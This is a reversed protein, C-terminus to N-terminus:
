RNKQRGPPLAAAAAGSYAALPNAAQQTGRQLLANAFAPSRQYAAGARRLAQQALFAAGFPAVVPIHSAGWTAAAGLAAPNTAVQYVGGLGGAGVAGALLPHQSLWGGTAAAAGPPGQGGGFLTTVARALDSAQGVTGPGTQLPMDPFRRNIDTMITNPKINGSADGEVNDEIAKLLRFRTKTDVVRDYIGPSSSAQFGRDLATDLQRALGDLDKNTDGVYNSLKSGSGVLRDYQAGTITDGQNPAMTLVKDVEHEIKATVLPDIGPAHASQLVTQLDNELQPTMQIQGGNLAARVDSGVQNTLPRLNSASFDTVNGIANGAADTTGGGVINGFAKNIQQMQSPSAAAGKQAATAGAQPLNSPLLDIGANKATNGADQVAKSALTADSGFMGGIKGGLWGGAAGMGAGTLMQYGIPQDPSGASTLANQGAGMIAGTALPNTVGLAPLVEGGTMVAPSAALAEGGFRGIGAAIPHAQQGAQEAASLPMTFQYPQWGTARNIWDAPANLVTRFGQGFGTEIAHQMGSPDPNFVSYGGPPPTATATSGSGSPTATTTPQTSAAPAGQQQQTGSGRLYAREAPSLVSLPDDDAAM